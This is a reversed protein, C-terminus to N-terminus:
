VSEVAQEALVRRQGLTVQALERLRRARPRLNLYPSNELDAMENKIYILIHDPVADLNEDHLLAHADNCRDWAHELTSM